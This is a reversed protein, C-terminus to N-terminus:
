VWLASFSSIQLIFTAQPINYININFCLVRVHSNQIFGFSDLYWQPKISAMVWQFLVCVVEEKGSLFKIDKNQQFKKNWEAERM